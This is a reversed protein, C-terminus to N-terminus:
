TTSRRRRWWSALFITAPMVTAGILFAIGVCRYNYNGSEEYIFAQAGSTCVGGYVLMTLYFMMMGLSRTEKKAYAVLVGIVALGVSVGGVLWWNM